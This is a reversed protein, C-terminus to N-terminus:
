RGFVKLEQKTTDSIVICQDHSDVQLVMGHEGAYTGSILRVRDGVQTHAHTCTHTRARSVCIGAWKQADGRGETDQVAEAAGACGRL